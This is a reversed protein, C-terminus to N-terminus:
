SSIRDLTPTRVPFVNMANLADSSDSIVSTARRLWGDYVAWLTPAQEDLRAPVGCLYECNFPMNAISPGLPWMSRPEVIGSQDAGTDRPYEKGTAWM